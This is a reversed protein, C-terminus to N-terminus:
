IREYKDLDSRVDAYPNSGQQSINLGLALIILAATDRCYGLQMWARTVAGMREHVTAHPSLVNALQGIIDEYEVRNPNPLIESM